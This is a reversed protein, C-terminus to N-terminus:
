CCYDHKQIKSSTSFLTFVNMHKYSDPHKLTDLLNIWEYYDTIIKKESFIGLLNTLRNFSRPDNVNIMQIWSIVSFCGQQRIMRIVRCNILKSVSCGGRWGEMGWIQGAKRKEGWGERQIWFAEPKIGNGEEAEEEKREGGDTQKPTNGNLQLFQLFFKKNRHRSNLM